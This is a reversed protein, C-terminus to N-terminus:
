QPRVGSKRCAEIFSSPTTLLSALYSDQDPLRLVTSIRDPRTLRSFIMQAIDSRPVEKIGYGNPQNSSWFRVTPHGDADRGTGLYVVLHGREHRGVADTWFIKLFDGPRAKEIETFSTGLGTLHFFRATGPGNANWRGWVGHGDPQPDRVILAQQIAPTLELEGAAALRNLVNLFLVYTAGSCFSPTAAQSKIRLTPTGPQIAARLGDFAPDTTAYGGQRPMRRIEELILRNFDGAALPLTTLLLLALCIFRM